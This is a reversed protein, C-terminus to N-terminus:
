LQVEVLAKRLNRRGRVKSFFEIWANWGEEDFVAFAEKPERTLFMLELTLAEENERDLLHLFTDGVWIVVDVDRPDPKATTFSGGVFMRLAGVQRALGVFTQLRGFLAQRRESTQGFRERIEDLDALHLGVPLFGNEQLEPLAM